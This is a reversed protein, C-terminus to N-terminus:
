AQHTSVQIQDLRRPFTLATFLSFVLLRHLLSVYKTIRNLNQTKESPTKIARQQLMRFAPSREWFFCNANDLSSCTHIDSKILECSFIRWVQLIIKAASKTVLGLQVPCLINIEPLKPELLSWIVPEKYCSSCLKRKM